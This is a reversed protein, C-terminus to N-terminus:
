NVSKLPQANFKQEFEAFLMDVTQQTPPQARYFPTGFVMERNTAIPGTNKYTIHIYPPVETPHIELVGIDVYSRLRQIGNAGRYAAIGVALVGIFGCLLFAIEFRWKRKADQPDLPVSILRWGWYAMLIPSAAGIVSLVVDFM